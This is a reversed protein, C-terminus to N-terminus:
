EVFGYGFGQRNIINRGYAGIKKRLRSINTDITRDSVSGEDWVEHQIESRDFFQNRNRMLMALILFETKSLSIAENDILVVGSGLDVSLGRYNLENNMRRHLTVRRRRIISKVRAILERSSFPKPLFDDAGADLAAVVDDEGAKATIMMLSVNYTEPNQKVAKIFKIGDYETGMLDVLVLSFDAIPMKFASEASHAIAVDYGENEFKYQLLECMMVEADVILIRVSSSNNSQPQNM